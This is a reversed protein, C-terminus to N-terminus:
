SWIPAAPSIASSKPTAGPPASRSIARVRANSGSMSRGGAPAQRQRHRLDPRPKGDRGGAGLTKGGAGACLDIVQEGPQAAAFLAALQSGEDQIEIQGKIYPPEAHIAPSKAEAAMRIRLGAPSWRTPEAHLHALRRFLTMASPSSRISGCISRRGARFRPAKPRANMASLARWIRTSGNRITAKSM